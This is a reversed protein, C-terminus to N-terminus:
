DEVPRRKHLGPQRAVLAAPITERPLKQNIALLTGSSVAHLPKLACLASKLHQYTTQVTGLEITKGIQGQVVQMLSLGRGDLMSAVTKIAQKKGESRYGLLMALQGIISLKVLKMDDGKQILVYRGKPNAQIAAGLNNLATVTNVQLTTIM